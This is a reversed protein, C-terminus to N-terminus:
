WIKFLVEWGVGDKVAQKDTLIGKNTSLIFNGYGNKFPRLLSSKQYVRKSFKSVRQAGQIKPKGDVYNIGVEIIKNNLRKKKSVSKVYGVKLLVNLIAERLKSYPLVVFEKGANGANKIGIIMNAIPDM